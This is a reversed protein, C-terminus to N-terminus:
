CRGVPAYERIRTRDSFKRGLILIASLVRRAWELRQDISAQSPQPDRGKPAAFETRTLAGLTSHPRM